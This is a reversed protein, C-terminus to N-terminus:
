QIVSLNIGNRAKGIVEGAFVCHLCRQRRLKNECTRLPAQEVNPCSLCSRYPIVRETNTTNLKQDRQVCYSTNIVDGCCRGVINVHPRAHGDQIATHNGPVCHRERRAWGHSSWASQNFRTSRHIRRFAM